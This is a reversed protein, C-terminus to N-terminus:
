KALFGEVAKRAAKETAYTNSCTTFGKFFRAPVSGDNKDVYGVWVTFRGNEQRITAMKSGQAFDTKTTM